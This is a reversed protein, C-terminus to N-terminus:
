LLGESMEVDIKLPQDVHITGWDTTMEWFNLKLESWQNLIKKIIKLIYIKKLQWLDFEGTEM